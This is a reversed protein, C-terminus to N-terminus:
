AKNASETIKWLLGPAYRRLFYGAAAEGPFICWKGKELGTEIADIIAEPTAMRGARAAKRLGQPGGDLAQKVLPTDVTSPCVLLIRLGSDRHEHYLIEGFTNVAAKSACYAALNTSLAVGASSGFLILDGSSRELMRPLVAKTVAVTGCYNIHMVRIFTEVPMDAISQGPMIGAAHALRDIPGLRATVAEVMAAVAAPDTVDCPFSTLNSSKAATSRLADENVDAIAVQAGQEALRLAMSQGMGSGGGTVLAVKGHFAM